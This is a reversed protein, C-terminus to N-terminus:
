GGPDDLRACVLSVLARMHDETFAEISRGNYLALLVERLDTAETMDWLGSADAVTEVTLTWDIKQM